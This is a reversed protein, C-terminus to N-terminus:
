RPPEHREGRARVAEANVGYKERAVSADVHELRRPGGGFLSGEPFTLEWFRGDRPDQYLQDWGGGTHGCATLRRTVLWFIRRDVEDHTTRADQEVWAGVLLREDPALDHFESTM